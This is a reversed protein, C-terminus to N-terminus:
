HYLHLPPKLDFAAASEEGSQWNGTCGPGSRHLAGLDMATCRLAGLQGSRHLATWHLATCGGLDLDAALICDQWERDGAPCGIVRGFSIYKM